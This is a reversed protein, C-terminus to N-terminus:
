FLLIEFPGISATSLERAGIAMAMFSTLSGLMWLTATIVPYRRSQTNM